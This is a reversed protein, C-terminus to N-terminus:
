TVKRGFWGYVEELNDQEVFDEEMWEWIINTKLSDWMVWIVVVITILIGKYQCEVGKV